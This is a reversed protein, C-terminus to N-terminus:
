FELGARAGPAVHKRYWDTSSVLKTAHNYLPVLDPEPEFQERFFQPTFDPAVHGNLIDLLRGCTQKPDHYRAIFARGRKALDRRRSWDPIISRLVCELQEPTQAPIAPFDEPWRQPYQDARVGGVVIKGQALLERDQKGLTVGYLQGVLIDADRYRRVADAHAVGELYDLDFELGGKALKELVALIDLTGKKERASPAHVIRPRKRQPSGEPFRDVSMPYPLADYYPRLALGAQSPTNFVADCMAEANRLRRLKPVLEQATLPYQYVLPSLDYQAMEQDFAGRWRVDEGLFWWVIRKGRAKLELLDKYDPTFTGWLFLFTDCEALARQWTFHTLEERIYERVQEGQAQDRFWALPPLSQDINVNCKSGQIVSQGHVATLCQIGHEAFGTEFEQILSAIDSCGIFVKKVEQPM